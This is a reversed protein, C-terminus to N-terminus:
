GIASPFNPSFDSAFVAFFGLIFAVFFSIFAINTNIQAFYLNQESTQRPPLEALRDIDRGIRNVVSVVSYSYVIFCLVCCLKLLVDRITLHRTAPRSSALMAIGALGAAASPPFLPCCVTVTVVVLPPEYLM